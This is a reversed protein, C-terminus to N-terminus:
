LGDEYSFLEKLYKYKERNDGFPRYIHLTERNKPSISFIRPNENIKKLLSIIDIRSQEFVIELENERERVTKIGVEKCLVRLRVVEFLAALEGPLPGFRDKVEEEFGALDEESKLGALRKYIEVRLKESGIYRKPIYGRYGLDLVPEIEERYAEGLRLENIAQDLMKVYM